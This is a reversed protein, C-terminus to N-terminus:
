GVPGAWLAARGRCTGARYAGGMANCAGGTTRCAGGGPAEGRGERPRERLAGSPSSRHARANQLVGLGFNPSNRSM